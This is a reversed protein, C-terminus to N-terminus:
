LFRGLVDSLYPEPLDGLYVVNRPTWLSPEVSVLDSFVGDRDCKLAHDAPHPVGASLQSTRTVLQIPRHMPGGSETIVVVPRDAAPDYRFSYIVTSVLYMQGMEPVFPEDSVGKKRSAWAHSRGDGRSM